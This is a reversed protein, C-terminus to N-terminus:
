ETSIGLCYSSMWLAIECRYDSVEIDDRGFSPTLMQDTPLNPDRGYLLFFPSEGTSQQPCAQYAFLIYSLQTDWDKGNWPVKKSLMDTSTHNLRETSTHNFREVEGDTQPHYTTTNVKNLGLLKYVEIM